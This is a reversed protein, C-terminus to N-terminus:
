LDGGSVDDDTVVDFTAAPLVMEVGPVLEGTEAVVPVAVGPELHAHAFRDVALKPRDVRDITKILDPANTKAWQVFEGENVVYVKPKKPTRSRLTGGPIAITKREPDMRLVARHFQRLPEALWEVRADFRALHQDRRRELLAIENAYTQDLQQRQVELRYIRRLRRAAYEMWSPDAPDLPPHEAVAEDTLDNEGYLDIDTM